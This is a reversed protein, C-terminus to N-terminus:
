GLKNMEAKKVLHRLSSHVISNFLGLVTFVGGVIACIQVLFHSFSKARKAFKVAIPSMDYRFYLAPIAFHGNIENSNAVYQYSDLVEGSLKEYRMPVIKVYYEFSKGEQANSDSVIKKANKLPNIGAEELDFAEEAHDGFSLNHIIHSLNMHKNQFFVALLNAHAHASLHFNGPVRKVIMFGNVNCGEGKQAHVDVGQGESPVPNGRSDLMPRGNVKDLRTKRLEGGVDLVHAGMVDQADVSVVSCPVAPVSININIRLMAHSNGTDIHSDVYMQFHLEPTLFNWFEALFLYVMAMISLVSVIAGTFTQETLEKPIDRYVDFTKVKKLFSM